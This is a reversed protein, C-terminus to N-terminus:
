KPFKPYAQCHGTIAIADVQLFSQHKHERLFYFVNLLGEKLYKKFFYAIQNASLTKIVLERQFM